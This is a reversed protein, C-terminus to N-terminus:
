ILTPNTVSQMHGAKEFAKRSLATNISPVDVKRSVSYTTGISTVEFGLKKQVKLSPENDQFVSSKIENTTKERFAHRLVAVGAETAYGQRWASQALWYGFVPASGFDEVSMIGILSERYIAFFHDLGASNRETVHAIWSLCNDQAYPHPVRALMRAVNWNSIHKVIEPTDATTPAKLMLRKTTLTEM